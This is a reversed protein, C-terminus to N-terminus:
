KNLEQLCKLLSDEWHPMRIGFDTYLKSKDLLSYAPRTAATPYASTPIGEVEIDLNSQKFISRAFDAWSCSGENSCHYVGNYIKPDNEGQSITEIIKLSAKALDLAYTPSGIQDNVVRLAPHTTALRLMTKVFNHGFPSYVWSTRLVLAHVPHELAIQDGALKSAAYVGQPHTPDSERFPRDQPLGYVYDTSYHLLKGDVARLADCLHAVGDRNIAYALDVEEEAKDVATYAASNILFDPEIKSIVAKIQEKDCLDMEERDVYFFSWSPYASQITQISQGLQGKSGTVLIKLSM